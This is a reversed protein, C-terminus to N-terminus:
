GPDVGRDKLINSGTDTVYLIQDPEAHMPDFSIGWPGEMTSANGTGDTSGAAGPSGVVTTVTGWMDCTPNCGDGNFLNSGDCKEAPDRTGDGCAGPSSHKM